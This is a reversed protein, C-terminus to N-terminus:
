WALTDRDRCAAVLSMLSNIAYLRVPKHGKKESDRNLKKNSYQNSQNKSVSRNGSTSHSSVPANRSAWEDFVGDESKAEV